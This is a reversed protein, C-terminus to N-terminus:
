KKSKVEARLMQIQSILINVTDKLDKVQEALAAIQPGCDLTQTTTTTTRSILSIGNKGLILQEQYDTRELIKIREKEAQKQNVTRNTM